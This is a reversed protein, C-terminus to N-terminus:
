GSRGTVPSVTATAIAIRKPAGNKIAFIDARTTVLRRSAKVVEGRATFSEGVGPALLRLDYQATVVDGSVTAAAYACATDALFGVLAGHLYGHHQGFDERWALALEVSGPEVSVVELGTWATFRQISAVHRFIALLAAPDTPPPAPPGPVAM